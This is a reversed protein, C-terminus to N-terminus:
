QETESNKGLEELKFSVSWDNLALDQELKLNTPLSFNCVKAKYPSVVFDDLEFLSSKVAIGKDDKITMPIKDVKIAKSAANRMVLTVLIQGDKKIGVSFTSVSFEGVKLKPLEELFRDFVAKDEAEIEEPLNEYEPRLYEEVKLNSDFTIKWDDMPIKDVYVNKKDFYIKCPRASHPPIEGLEKMNCLQYALTEGKSNIIMFPIYELNIETDLGNRIYIKVELQDGLDYAYVGSVNIDGEKIPELESIEEELVEKQVDSIVNSDRELLSLVTPVEEREVKDLENKQVKDVM